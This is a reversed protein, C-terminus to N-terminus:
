NSGRVVSYVPTGGSVLKVTVGDSPSVRQESVMVGGAPVFFSGDGDVVPVSGDVTYFVAASGDSIVQVSRIDDAFTVSDVTDATLTKNYKGVDGAAVTYDAM